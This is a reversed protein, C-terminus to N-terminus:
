RRATRLLAAGALLLMAIGLGLIVLWINSFGLAFGIGVGVMSLTVIRALSTAFFPIPLNVLRAAALGNTAGLALGVALAVGPLPHGLSGFLAIALVAGVVCAIAANRVTHAADVATIERRM